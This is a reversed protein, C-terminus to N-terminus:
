KEEKENKKDILAWGAVPPPGDIVFWGSQFGAERLKRFKSHTMKHDSSKVFWYGPEDYCAEIYQVSFIQKIHEPVM